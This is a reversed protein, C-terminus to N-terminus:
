KNIGEIVLQYGKIVQDCTTLYIMGENKSIAIDGDKQTRYINTVEYHLENDGFSLIIDDGIVVNRLENFYAISGVGSHAAFLYSNEVPIPIWLVNLDVDNLPNDYNFFGLNMDIRPIKIFGYYEENTYSDYTVNGSVLESSSNSSKYSILIVIGILFIIILCRKLVNIYTDSKIIKSM